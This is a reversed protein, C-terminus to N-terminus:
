EGLKFPAGQRAQRGAHGLGDQRRHLAALGDRAAGAGCQAVVFTHGVAKDILRRGRQKTAAGIVGTQFVRDAIVHAMHARRQQGGQQLGRGAILRPAERVHRQELDAGDEGAALGAILM